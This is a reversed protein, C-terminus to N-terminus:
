HQFLRLARKKKRIHSRQIRLKSRRGRIWKIKLWVAQEYFQDFHEGLPDELSPECFNEEITEENRPTTTTQEHYYTCEDEMYYKDPNAVLQGQCKEEKLIDMMQKFHADMKEYSQTISNNIRAFEQRDEEAESHRALMMRDIRAM